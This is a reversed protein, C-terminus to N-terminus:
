NDHSLIDKTINYAGRKIKASSIKWLVFRLIKYPLCFINNPLPDYIALLVSVPLYKFNWGIFRREPRKSVGWVKGYVLRPNEKVADWSSVVHHEITSNEIISMGKASHCIMLSLGDHHQEKFKDDGWFDAITIDAKRYLGNFKCDYCSYRNTLTSSFGNIVLGGFSPNRVIGNKNAITLNYSGWGENKDRYSLIDCEGFKEKFKDILLRSPVGGCVIDITILNVFHKKGLFSLLAAVQCATGQFLTLKGSLLFDLTKKYIGTTDSQQYKSGQLKELDEMTQICCHYAQSNHMSVGIVVGGEKIIYTALASFVGGSTSKMRQIHNTNWAAFPTSVEEKKYNFSSLVPCVTQCRGCKVCVNEDIHVYRHGDKRIYSSIAGKNCSDLCALCGTCDHQSALKIKKNKEM